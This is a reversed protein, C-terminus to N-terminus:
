RIRTPRATTRGFAVLALMSGLALAATGLMAAGLGVTVSLFGM